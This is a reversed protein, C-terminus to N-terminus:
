MTPCHPSDYKLYEGQGSITNGVAETLDPRLVYVNTLDGTCIDIEGECQAAGLQSIKVINMVTSPDPTNLTYKDVIPDGNIDPESQATFQYSPSLAPSDECSNQTVKAAFAWTGAGWCGDYATPRSGDPTFTGTLQLTANCQMGNATTMDGSTCAVLSLGLAIGALREM